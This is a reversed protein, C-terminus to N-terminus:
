LVDAILKVLLKTRIYAPLVSDILKEDKIILCIHHFCAAKILVIHGMMFSVPLYHMQVHMM